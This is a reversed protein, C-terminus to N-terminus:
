GLLDKGDLVLPIAKEQIPTPTTYKKEAVARLIEPRLGFTQFSSREVSTGQEQM